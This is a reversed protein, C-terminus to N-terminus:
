PKGIPARAPRGVSRFTPQLGLTLGMREAWESTGYPRGKRVCRRIAKASQPDEHGNVLDLWGDPQLVPWLSLTPGHCNKCRQFLSSWRWDQALTVLNARLPNREVYRCVTLFHGDSQVPFAKFRGQYVSGTGTTKRHAHWRKSHTTTFWHMFESLEGDHVPWVVFHFHNPMVCYALIRIPTRHQAEQLTRVFAGYDAPDEFLRARRVARNLVHFVTGGTGSRPREPVSDVPDVETGSVSIVEPTM